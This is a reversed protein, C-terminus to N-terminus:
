AIMSLDVNTARAIQLLAERMGGPLGGPLTVRAYLGPMDAKYFASLQQLYVPYPVTQLYSEPFAEVLRASLNYGREPLAKRLQSLRTTKRELNIYRAGRHLEAPIAIAWMAKEGPRAEGPSAPFASQLEPHYKWARVEVVHHSELLFDATHTEMSLIVNDTLRPGEAVAFFSTLWYAAGRNLPDLADTMARHPGVALTIKDTQTALVDGVTEMIQLLHHNPAAQALDAALRALRTGKRGARKRLVRALDEVTHVLIRYDQASVAM